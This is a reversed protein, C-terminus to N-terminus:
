GCRSPADHLGDDDGAGGLVARDVLHDGGDHGGDGLAVGHEGHGDVDHCVGRLFSHDDPFQAAPVEPQEEVPFGGSGMRVAAQGDLVDEDGAAPELQETIFGTRGVLDVRAVVPLGVLGAEEQPFPGGVGRM